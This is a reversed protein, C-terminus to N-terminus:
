WITSFEIFEIKFSIPGKVVCLWFFYWTITGKVMGNKDIYCKWVCCSPHVFHQVSKVVYISLLFHGHICIYFIQISILHIVIFFVPFCQSVQLTVSIFNIPFILIDFPSLILHLPSFTLRKGPRLLPSPPPRFFRSPCLVGYSPCVLRSPEIVMPNVAPDRSLCSFTTQQGSHWRLIILPPSNLLNPLPWAM